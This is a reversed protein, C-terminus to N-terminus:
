PLCESSSGPAIRGLAFAAARRVALHRDHLRGSLVPLATEAKRGMATVVMAGALRETLEDAELAVVAVPLVEQPPDGIAALALLAAGRVYEYKLKLAAM